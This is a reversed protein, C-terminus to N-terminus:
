TGSNEKDKDHHLHFKSYLIKFLSKSNQPLNQFAHELIYSPLWIVSSTRDHGLNVFFRDPCCASRIKHGEQIGASATWQDALLNPSMPHRQGKERTM